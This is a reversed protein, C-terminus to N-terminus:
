CSAGFLPFYLGMRWHHLARVRWGKWSFSCSTKAVGSISLYMYLHLGAGWHGIVTSCSLILMLSSCNSSRTHSRGGDTDGCTIPPTLWMLRSRIQLFMGSSIVNSQGLVGGLVLGTRVLVSALNNQAWIVGPVGWSHIHAPLSLSLGSCM